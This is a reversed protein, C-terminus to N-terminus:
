RCMPILVVGVLLPTSVECGILGKPFRLLVLQKEMFVCYEILRGRCGLRDACDKM